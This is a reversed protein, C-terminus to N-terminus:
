IKNIPADLLDEAAEKIGESISPHAHIIEVFEDVTYESQIAVVAEHIIESACEGVISVGLLENYREDAIIKILGESKAELAAKPLIFYPFKGVKVRNYKEKAESESLGVWAVEPKTYVCAPVAKLNVPKKLGAINSAAIIGQYSAVHALQYSNVIDGIAYINDVNTQLFSNVAIYGDNFLESMNEFGTYNAKRGTAILIKDFNIDIKDNDTLIFATSDKIKEIKSHTYFVVGRKKLSEYIVEVIDRDLFPLIEPLLEVVVVKSGLSSFIYAFELGIVGAGVILLRPPIENLALAAESDLTKISDLGDIEPMALKSGTALIINKGKLKKDGVRIAEKDILTAFGKYIDVNANKLLAEVGKSFKRVIRDKFAMLRTFNFDYHADIGFVKAEDFTNIINAAHCLVKTPICGRNLCTGGLDREEVIATKLHLQSARIAATYGGPGAGIVILDYM